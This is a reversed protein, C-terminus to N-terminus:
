RGTSGFGGEGRATEALESVEVLSVQPTGVLELQVVRDGDALRVDEEGLVYLIAMVEGVYGPDVLGYGGPMLLRGSAAIGSRMVIHGALGVPISIRFGLPVRTTTGPLLRHDGRVYCDFAVDDPHGKRPKRGGEIVVANIWNM